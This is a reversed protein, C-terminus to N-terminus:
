APTGAPVEAPRQVPQQESLTLLRLPNDHLMTDIQGLPIGRARLMPVFDALVTAYGRGGYRRLMTRRAIDSSLIIQRELGRACADRVLDALQENTPGKPFGVKDIGIFAGSRAVEILDAVDRAAGMHSIVVRSLDMGAGDLVRLHWAAQDPSSTHTIVPAGTARAAGAAAAFMREAVADPAGRHTGVKIVGCRIGTDGVGAEVEAIMVDRLAEVTGSIAIAPFPDWYFGAACVVAIGSRESIRRLAPPDRGWGPASLDTIGTLGFEGAHRLDDVVADEEAAGLRVAPGKQSSLDIQLHEHALIRGALGAIDGTVTRIVAATGPNTLGKDGRAPGIALDGM